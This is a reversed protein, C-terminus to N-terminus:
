SLIARSMRAQGSGSLRKPWAGEVPISLHFPVGPAMKAMNYWPYGLNKADPIPRLLVAELVAALQSNVPVCLSGDWDGKNIGSLLAHGLSEGPKMSSATWSM